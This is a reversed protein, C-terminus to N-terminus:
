QAIYSINLKGNDSPITRAADSCTGAATSKRTGASRFSFGAKLILPRWTLNTQIRRENDVPMLSSVNAKWTDVQDEHVAHLLRHPFPVRVRERRTVTAALHPLKQGLRESFCDQEDYADLRFQLTTLRVLNVQYITTLLKQTCAYLHIGPTGKAAATLITTDPTLISISSYRLLWGASAVRTRDEGYSCM